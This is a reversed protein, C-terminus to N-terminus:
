NSVRARPLSKSDFPSLNYLGKTLGPNSRWVGFRWCDSDFAQGCVSLAVVHVLILYFDQVRYGMGIILLCQGSSAVVPIPEGRARSIYMNITKIKINHCLSTLLKVVSVLCSFSISIIMMQMIVWLLHLWVSRYIVCYTHLHSMHAPIPIMKLDTAEKVLM